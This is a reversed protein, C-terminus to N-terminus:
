SSKATIVFWYSSIFFIVLLNAVIMSTRLLISMMESTIFLFNYSLGVLSSKLDVKDRYSAFISPQMWLLLSFLFKSVPMSVLM